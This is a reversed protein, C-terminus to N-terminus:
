LVLYIPCRLADLVEYHCVPHNLSAGPNLREPLTILPRTQPAVPGDRPPVSPTPTSPPAPQPKPPRPTPPSGSTGSITSSDDSPLSSREVGEANPAASTSSTGGAANLLADKRVQAGDLPPRCQIGGQALIFCAEAHTTLAVSNAHGVKCIHGAPNVSCASQQLTIERIASDQNANQYGVYGLSILLVGLAFAFFAMARQQRRYRHARIEPTPM